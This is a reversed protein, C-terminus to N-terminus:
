STSVHCPLLDQMVVDGRFSELCIFLLLLLSEVGKRVSSIPGPALAPRSSAQTFSGLFPSMEWQPIMNNDMGLLTCYIPPKSCLLCPKPLISCQVIWRIATEATCLKQQNQFLM